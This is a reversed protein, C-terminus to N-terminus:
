GFIILWSLVGVVAGYIAYNKTYHKRVESVLNPATYTKSEIVVHEVTNPFYLKVNQTIVIDEAPATVAGLPAMFIVLSLLIYKM